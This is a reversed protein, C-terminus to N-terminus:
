AKSSTGELDLPFYLLTLRYRRSHPPPDRRSIKELEALVEQLRNRIEIIEADTGHLELYSLLAHQRDVPDEVARIMRRLEDSTNDLMTAVLDAMAGPGAGAGFLSSDARFQRAVALYYKEVTGRNQRTRTRRILGVRELAEVHHYLRTPKEGLQEAVQKTTREELCFAELIRVRLADALVKV